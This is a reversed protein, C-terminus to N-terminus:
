LTTLSQRSCCHRSGSHSRCLCMCTHQDDLPPAGQRARGVSGQAMCPEGRGRGWHKVAARLVASVLLWSQKSGIKLDGSLWTTSAPRASSSTFFRPLRLLSTLSICYRCACPVTHALLPILTCVRPFVAAWSDCIQATATQAPAAVSHMALCWVSLAPLCWGDFATSLFLPLRAGM